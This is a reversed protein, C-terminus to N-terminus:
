SEPIDFSIYEKNETIRVKTETYGSLGIKIKNVLAPIAAEEIDMKINIVINAM